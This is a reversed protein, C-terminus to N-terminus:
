SLGYGRQYLKWRGPAERRYHRDELLSVFHIRWDRDPDVSAIAEADAVTILSDFEGGDRAYVPSGDRTVAAYGIGVGIACDLPLWEDSGACWCRRTRELVREATDQTAAADGADHEHKPVLQM